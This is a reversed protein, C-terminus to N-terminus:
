IEGTMWLAMMISFCWLLIVPCFSYNPNFLFNSKIFEFVILTVLAHSTVKKVIKNVSEKQKIGAAIALLNM